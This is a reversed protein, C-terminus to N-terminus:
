MNKVHHAYSLCLLDKPSKSLFIGFKVQIYKKTDKM